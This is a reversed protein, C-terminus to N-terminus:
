ENVRVLVLPGLLSWPPDCSELYSDAELMAEGLSAAMRVKGLNVNTSARMAMGEATWETAAGMQKVECVVKGHPDKRVYRSILRSRKEREDWVLHAAEKEEWPLALKRNARLLDLLEGDGLPFGAMGRLM